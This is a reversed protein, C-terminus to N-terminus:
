ESVKMRVVYYHPSNDLLEKTAKESRSLDVTGCFRFADIREDYWPSAYVMLPIEEDPKWNTKSYARWFYPQTGHGTWKESKIKKLKIDSTGGRYNYMSVSQVTDGDKAYFTLKPIYDFHVLSDAPIDVDAPFHLYTNKGKSLSISNVKEGKVYEDIWTSFRYEREFAPTFPINFIRVGAIELARLIEVEGIRDSQYSNYHDDKMNQPREDKQYQINKPMDQSVAIVPTLVSILVAFLVNVKVFRVINSRTANASAPLERDPQELFIRRNM